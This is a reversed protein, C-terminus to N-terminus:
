FLDKRLGKFWSIRDIYPGTLPDTHREFNGTKIAAMIGPIGLNEIIATDIYVGTIKVQDLRRHADSSAVGKKHSAKLQELAKMNAERMDYCPLNICHANHAEVEDCKSYAYGIPILDSAKPPQYRKNEIFAFPHCLIALGGANHINDITYQVNPQDFFYGGEFGLALVHHRGGVVEQTRMFYGQDYKALKGPTIEEFSREGKLLEVADEYTFVNDRKNRMALGVLGHSGLMHKIGEGDKDPHAHFDCLVKGPLKPSKEIQQDSLYHHALTGTSYGMALLSLGAAGIFQRRTFGTM